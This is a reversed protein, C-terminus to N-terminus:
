KAGEVESKRQKAVWAIVQQYVSMLHDYDRDGESAAREPMHPDMGRIAMAVLEGVSGSWVPTVELDDSGREDTIAEWTGFCSCHSYDFIAAVGDKVIAVYGSESYDEDDDQAIVSAEFELRNLKV